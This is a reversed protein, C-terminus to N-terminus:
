EFENKCRVEKVLIKQVDHLNGTKFDNHSFEGIFDGHHFLKMGLLSMQIEDVIFEVSTSDSFVLDIKIDRGYQFVICKYEDRYFHCDYKKSIEALETQLRMFKPVSFFQENM